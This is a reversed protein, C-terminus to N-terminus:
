QSSVTIAVAKSTSSVYTSDGSYVATISDVHTMPTGGGGGGGGSSGGGGCGAFGSVIGGLILACAFAYVLRRHPSLGGRRTTVIVLLGLIAAVVAPLAIAPPTGPTHSSPNFFLPPANSLTPSLSATCTGGTTTTGAKPTCTVPSGLAQTGNMFQVIGTVGPGANTSGTVTANLTVAAGATITASSSTLATTTPVTGTTVVNLTATGVSSGYNNDGSTYTAKISESGPVTFTHALTATAFAMVPSGSNLGSAAHSVVAVATGVQTGNISFVVSGTPGVGSSQTSVTATLTVSTNPTIGAAPAATVTTITTAKTITVNTPPSSSSSNFSNDGIYSAALAHSGAALQVPQDEAIGLSSLKVTNSGSFDKLPQGNDTLTVNGTPCGAVQSGCQNGEADKVAIQLIYSSGYEVSTTTTVPTNGNFTVFNVATTSNEKTVNLTVPSSTGPAFTGDGGYKAVVSVGNGGPLQITTISATGGSLTITKSESFSGIVVPSGTPPTAILAVSGTPGSTPTVNVTFTVPQGHTSASPGSLTVTVPTFSVSSWNNLLNTVNLSGLGTANDYGTQTIFAPKTTATPDVLVGFQGSTTNSCNTSGGACAVSNNGLVTDYFICTSAPAASSPCITSASGNKYLQYLVFNANGQRQGTKQNVL